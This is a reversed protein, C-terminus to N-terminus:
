AQKKKNMREELLDVIDKAVETKSKLPFGFKQGEATLITIKNTEHQFGAGPDNLSNLVIFDFHKKEIKKLAHVEENETELAFGISIQGPQKAKGLAAAIDETRVLEINLDSDSKKIKQSARVAPTYDAVAAALIAVRYEPWAGKAAAAMEAASKVPIVKLQPHPSIELHNPGLILLVTAGRSLLNEVLAQGMKGTSRNGIFRVPDIEEYTPGATVLVKVGDLSQGEQFFQMLHAVIHEPEAMRGMGTLGSALEGHEVPILHVRDEQLQRLNRQTSPHKWMDVDMAPAVMVPCRASLYCATLMNDCQGSALKALTNASAPAVLFLDAWLGLEVHNNWSEETSVKSFVPRRSLTSLTLPSIFQSASETMVVQVEAGKRILLRILFASKYAAISGTIGLLIKKGALM